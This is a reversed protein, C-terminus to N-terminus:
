ACPQASGMDRGKVFDLVMHIDEPEREFLEPLPEAILKFGLSKYFGVASESPTASVYVRNAYMEQALQLLRRVITTAINRRRYPLSVQLYALQAMGPRIEPTLLGVGVLKESDFAGYMIANSSLHRDCFNIQEAVTHEGEGETFFDPVDWEVNKKILKGDQVEFGFRIIETRDIEILRPLEAKTM